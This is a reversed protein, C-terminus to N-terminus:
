GTHPHVRRLEDRDAIVTRGTHLLVRHRRPDPYEDDDGPPQVVGRAQLPWDPPVEVRLPLVEVHDGPAIVRHTHRGGRPCGHRGCPAPPSVEGYRTISRYEEIQQAAEPAQRRLEAVVRDEIMYRHVLGPVAELRGYLVTGAPSYRNYARWWVVSADRPDRGFDVCTARLPAAPVRTFGVPRMIPESM